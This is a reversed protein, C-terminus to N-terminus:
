DTDSKLMQLRKKVVSEDCWCTDRRVHLGISDYEHNYRNSAISDFLPKSDFPEGQQQMKMELAMARRTIATHDDYNTFITVCESNENLDLITDKENVTLHLTRNDNELYFCSLLIQRSVSTAPIVTDLILNQNNKISIYHENIHYSGSPDFFVAVSVKKANGCALFFVSALLVIYNKKTNMM